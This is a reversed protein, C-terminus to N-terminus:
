ALMEAARRRLTVSTDRDIPLRAGDLIIHVAQEANGSQIHHEVLQELAWRAVSAPELTGSTPEGRLWMRGAKRYLAELVQLALAASEGDAMALRAAEQLNDHASDRLRDLELLTRVLAPAPSGGAASVIALSGAILVSPAEGKARRLRM